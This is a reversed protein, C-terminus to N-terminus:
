EEAPCVLRLDFHAASTVRRLKSASPHKTLLDVDLADTTCDVLNSNTILRLVAFARPRSTGSPLSPLFATLAHFASPSLIEPSRRDSAPERLAFPSLRRLGEGALNAHSARATSADARSM